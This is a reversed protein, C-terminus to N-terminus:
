PGISRCVDHKSSRKAKRKSSLENRASISITNLSVPPKKSLKRKSQIVIKNDDFDFNETPKCEPAPKQKRRQKVPREFKRRKSALGIFDSNLDYDFEPSIIEKRRKRRQSNNMPEHVGSRDDFKPAYIRVVDYQNDGQSKKADYELDINRKKGNSRTESSNIPSMNEEKKVTRNKKSDDDFSMLDDNEVEMGNEEEEDDYEDYVSNKQAHLQRKTEILRSISDTIPAYKVELEKSQLVRNRNLKRFKNAIVQRTRVLSTKLKKEEASM